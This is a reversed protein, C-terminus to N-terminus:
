EDFTINRVRLKGKYPKLTVGDDSVQFVQKFVKDQVVMGPKLPPSFDTDDFGQNVRREAVKLEAYYTLETVPIWGATEGLWPKPPPAPNQPNEPRWLLDYARGVITKPLWLGHVNDFEYDTDTQSIAEGHERLEHRVVASQREPDVYMWVERVDTVPTKPEVRIVACERDNVKKTGVETIKLSDVTQLSFNRFELSKVPFLGHAYFVTSSIGSSYSKHWQSQFYVVLNENASNTSWSQKGDFGNQHERKNFELRNLFFVHQMDSHRFRSKDFDVAWTIQRPKALDQPPFGGEPFEVEVNERDFQDDEGVLSGAKHTVTGDLNYFVNHSKEFRQQWDSRIREIDVSQSVAKAPM